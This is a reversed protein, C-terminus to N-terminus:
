KRLDEGFIERLRAVARHQRSAVAWFTMGLQAAVEEIKLRDIFRMRM